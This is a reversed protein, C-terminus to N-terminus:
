TEKDFNEPSTLSADAHISGGPQATVTMSAGRGMRVRDIIDNAYNSGRSIIIGTIVVGVYPIRAQFGLADFFDLNYAIATVISLVLAVIFRWNEGLWEKSFSLGKFVDLANVSGEVLVAGLAIFGILQLTTDV